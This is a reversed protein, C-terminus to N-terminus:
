GNVSYVQGWLAAMGFEVPQVGGVSKANYIFGIDGQQAPIFDYQAAIEQVFQNVGAKYGAADTSTLMASIAADLKPDSIKEYNLAGGTGFIASTTPFLASNYFGYATMQYNQTQNLDVTYQAPLVIKTSVSVNKYANLASAVYQATTSNTGTPWLVTFKVPKGESALQNFLDQAKAKDQAEYNLSADFYPSSSPFYNTSVPNGPAWVNALATRDLALFVAQRARVDNFPATGQNMDLWAGGVPHSVIATMGIGTLSTIQQGTTVAAAQAQSSSLNAQTQSTDTVEEFTLADLYPENAAYLKFNPNKVLALSVSPTLKGMMFPGPGVPQSGFSTGEKQVAAPSPILAFYQSIESPFQSNASPLTFQVTTTSVAKATIAAALKAQTSGTAPNAIRTINDVVSQADFATGDSFKLGGHLVMTWTKNGDSGTMSQAFGMEVAGTTANQYLLGPGYLAEMEPGDTFTSIFNLAPDFTSNLGAEEVTVQGGSKPGSGS